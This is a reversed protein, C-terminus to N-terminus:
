RQQLAERVSDAAAEIIRGISAAIDEDLVGSWEDMYIKKIEVAISCGTDGYRGNIWRSMQGGTFKVNTRVDLSDDYFPLESMTETFASVVDDWSAAITKTGLNIEPNLEPDDVPADPGGRRHNYSHIDLVVIHGHAEVVQDCLRGLQEYFSDYVELSANVLDDAPEASWIDLGWADSPVRYIAKDRPRNIDVEFRSRHVVISNKAVGVMQDTFPDEERLQDADSLKMLASVEPRLEHGAHLATALIPDDGTVVTWPDSTM